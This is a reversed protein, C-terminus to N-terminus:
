VTAKLSERPVNNEVVGVVEIGSTRLFRVVATLQEPTTSKTDRVVLAVAQSRPATQAPTASDNQRDGINKPEDTVTVPEMDLLVLDHVAALADLMAATNVEADDVQEHAAKPKLPFLTLRDEASAIAAEALPLKDAVVHQWDCPLQVGLQVGLQPNSFDGDVLAVRAGARAAWRALCLALTTRGEGRRTSVIALVKRGERAAALLQQGAREFYESHLQLLDECAQPWQFRDLEWVPRFPNEKVKAAAIEKIPEAAAAAAAAVDLHPQPIAASPADVRMIKRHAAPEVQGSEDDAVNYAAVATMDLKPPLVFESSTSASHPSGSTTTEVHSTIDPASQSNDEVAPPAVERAAHIARAPKRPAVSGTTKPFEAHPPPVVVSAGNPTTPQEVRYWAGEAYWQEVPIATAAKSPIAAGAAPRTTAVNSRPSTSGSTPDKAYAKIFAQDLASM